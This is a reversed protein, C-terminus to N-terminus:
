SKSGFATTTIARLGIIALGIPLSWQPAIGLDAWNVNGLYAVANPVVAVALGFAFTRWGKM